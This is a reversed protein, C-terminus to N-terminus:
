EPGAAGYNAPGDKWEAFAFHFTSKLWNKATWNSLENENKENGFARPDPESVFLSSRAIHRLTSM